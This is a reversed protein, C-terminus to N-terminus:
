WDMNAEMEAECDAINDLMATCADLFNIISKLYRYINDVDINKNDLKYELSYSTPYRFQDGNKDIQSLEYIAKEVINM